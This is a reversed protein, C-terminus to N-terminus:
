VTPTVPPQLRAIEAMIRESADIAMYPAALAPVATAALVVGATFAKLTM